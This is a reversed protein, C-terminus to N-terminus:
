RKEWHGLFEFLYESLVRSAEKSAYWLQRMEAIGGPTRLAAFVGAATRMTGDPRRYKDWDLVLEADPGDTIARMAAFPLHHRAAVRAVAESEMDVAVTGTAAALRAREARTRVMMASLAIKGRVAPPLCREIAPDGTDVVIAGIRAPEMLGGAYGASVLATLSGAAVLAEAGKLAADAGMGAALIRCGAPKRRLLPALERPLACLIGVM